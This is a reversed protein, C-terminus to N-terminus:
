TGRAGRRRSKVQDAQAKRFYVELTIARLNNPDVQLVRDATDLTKAQDFSSYAVMLQQLVDAKVSSNPYKTLYAELAPAKTQPTTQNEAATYDNYEAQPMQVGTGQASAAAAQSFGFRAGPAVSAVALLSAVVAKRM